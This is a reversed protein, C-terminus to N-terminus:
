QERRSELMAVLEVLSDLSMVAYALHTGKGRRKSVVVPFTDSAGYKERYHESEVESEAIWQSLAVQKVNKAEIVIVGATTPWEVDGTDKAGTRPLRRAKVGVGNLYDVIATEFLTGRAKNASSM